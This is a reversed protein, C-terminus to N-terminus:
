DWESSAPRSMEENNFMKKIVIQLYQQSVKNKPDLNSNHSINNGLRHNLDNITRPGNDCNQKIINLELKSDEMPSNFQMVTRGGVGLHNNNQPGKNIILNEANTIINM